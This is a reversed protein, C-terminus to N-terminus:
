ALGIITLVENVQQALHTHPEKALQEPTYAGTTIGIVFGCGANTGEQMDSATDGVKVVRKVDTVGTRKMAEFIMDPAPRGNAVEDSTISADLLGRKEWGLRKLLENTIERDFGTDVAVKIGVKKLAAFTESVGEKEGVSVDYRYFDIMNDVFYRHIAEILKEDFSTVGGDQLLKKIAVPKPIGMLDTAQQLSTNVGGLEVLAKQLVRPVDLNDKVTTGALDFVVLQTNM